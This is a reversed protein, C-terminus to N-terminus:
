FMKMLDSAMQQPTAAIYGNSSYIYDGVLVNLGMNRLTTIGENIRSAELPSGLTVIGVTDGPQLQHPRTAMNAVGKEVFMYMNNM